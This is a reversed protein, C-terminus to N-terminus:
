RVRIIGVRLASSASLPAGSPSGLQLAQIGNSGATLLLFAAGTGRVGAVAQSISGSALTIPQVPFAPDGSDTFLGCRHRDAGCVLGTQAVWFIDALNFSPLTIRPDAAVYTPTTYIATALNWYTLLLPIPQGTHAQLNDLGTLAPENILSKIFAAEDSAYQDTAWRAITWGAGYNAPTDKGLGESTGHLYEFTFPLHTLLLSYPKDSNPNCPAPGGLYIECDVTQDFGAHSKWGAHNFQRMWIESSVQALGEELWIDDLSPSNNLIRSAIATIHKTEHAATARLEKKWFDVSIQQSSSPVLSYFVETENSFVTDTGTIGSPFFDCPNVFALVGGGLKNLLPTLVVTVKGASSLQSDMALPDGIYTQVHPWTRVDYEDAFTQYFASDPRDAQPWTVPNTDALVIVHQGVAVTRAGISDVSGCGGRPNSRVYVQNVTGVTQSAALGLRGVSPNLSRTRRITRGRLSGYVARNLDLLQMHTGSLRRMVRWDPSPGQAAYVRSSMGGASLGTTGPSATVAPAPALAATSGPTPVFAGLLMFDETVNSSPNTNVVGILYQAGAQVTLETAFPTADLFVKSEGAAALTTPPSSALVRLSVEIQQPSNAASGSMIPVTATYTGSALSSTVAILTLTAPSTTESLSAALWTTGSTYVIQGVSLDKLAAGGTSTIRVTQAAPGATGQIGVFTVKNSALAIAAASAPGTPADGGGGCAVLLVALVTLMSRAYRSGGRIM